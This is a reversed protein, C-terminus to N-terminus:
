RVDGAVTLQVCPADPADYEIAYRQLTTGAIVNPVFADGDCGPEQRELTRWDRPM